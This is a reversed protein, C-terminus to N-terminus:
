DLVHSGRKKIVKRKLFPFNESARNGRRKEQNFNEKNLVVYDYINGWRQLADPNSESNSWHKIQNLSAIEGLNLVKQLLIVPVMSQNLQNLHGTIFCSKCLHHKAEQFHQIIQIWGDTRERERKTCTMMQFPENWHNHM